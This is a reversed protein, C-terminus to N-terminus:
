KYNDYLQLITAIYSIVNYNSTNKNQPKIFFHFVLLM